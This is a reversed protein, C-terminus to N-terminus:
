KGEQRAQKLIPWYKRRIANIETPFQESVGARSEALNFAVRRVEERQKFPVFKVVILAPIISGDTDRKAKWM